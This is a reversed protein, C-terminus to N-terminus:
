TEDGDSAAIEFAAKIFGISRDIDDNVIAVVVDVPKAISAAFALAEDESLIRDVKQAGHDVLSRTFQESIKGVVQRFKKREDIIMPAKLRGDIKDYIVFHDYSDAIYAATDDILEDSRDYALRLVGFVKGSNSCLKRALEAVFKLSYKEHAYDAIITIDNQTTFKTLRGGNEDMHIAQIRQAYLASDIQGENFGFYAASVFLLNYLSPEYQGDFTWSVSRIDCLEYRISGNKIVVMDDEITCVYSDVAQFDPRLTCYIKKVLNKSPIKAVKQMVFTDDANIVAWGDLDIRAFIFEKADAIDQQSQIRSSSGIHDELVNTFVGVRHNKYGIGPRASSGLAAELVASCKQVDMTEQYLYPLFKGPAVTPVLGTFNLSGELDIKQDGNVYAGTTDVRLVYDFDQRLLEDLVRVVTTKGKTGTVAIIPVRQRM